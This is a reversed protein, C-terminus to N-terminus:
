IHNTKDSNYSRNIIHKTIIFITIITHKNIIHKNYYFNNCMESRM